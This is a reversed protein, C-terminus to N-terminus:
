QHDAVAVAGDHRHGTRLSVLVAPMKLLICGLRCRYNPRPPSVLMRVLLGREICMQELLHLQRELHEEDFNLVLGCMLGMGRVTHVFPEPELEERLRRQFYPGTRRVRSLIGDEQGFYGEFIGLIHGFYAM